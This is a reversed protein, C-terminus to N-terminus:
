KEEFYFSRRWIALLNRHLRNIARTAKEPNAIKLTEIDQVGTHASKTVKKIRAIKRRTTNKNKRKGVSNRPDRRGSVFEGAPM